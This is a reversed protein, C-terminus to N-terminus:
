MSLVEQYINKLTNVSNKWDYRESRELGRSVLETYLQEDELIKKMAECIEEVSYPDVLIGADGIIEPMSAAKASIVPTGCAMAEIPPTGFGEYLSPFLFARAGSFLLPSDEEDVYGTFVIDGGKNLREATEYISDCLWGKGGALVLKPVDRREERLCAYAEIIRQINKRPEITGLYLFYEGQINYKKKADEIQDKSYETKFLDLDVGPYMVRIKEEPIGLYKIIESKSFESVTIIMDARKCSRKLTMDLWMRNKFRVTNRCALHAMDHVITLKKGKVGPPIVFNFFQTIQCDGGFFLSYPLPFFIWIYKYWAMKFFPCPNLKAGAKQYEEMGILNEKSSGKTFYDMQCDYGEKLMGHILNYACWAIGTRNGKLLLQSEFAIKVM